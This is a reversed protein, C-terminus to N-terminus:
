GGEEAVKSYNPSFSIERASVHVIKGIHRSRLQCIDPLSLAGYLLFIQSEFDLSYPAFCYLKGPLWSKTDQLKITDEPVDLLQWAVSVIEFM